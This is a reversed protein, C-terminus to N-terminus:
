QSMSQRATTVHCSYTDIDDRLEGFNHDTTSSELTLADMVSGDPAIYHLGHLAASIEDILDFHDIVDNWAGVRSDTVIHLRVSIAAERVGHLLQKWDIADFEIFVAPVAFPQEDIANMLQDNWLGVHAVSPVTELARAITTYVTKRM